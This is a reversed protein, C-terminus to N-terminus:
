VNNAIHTALCTPKYSSVRCAGRKKFMIIVINVLRQAERRGKVNNKGAADMGAADVTDQVCLSMTLVALLVNILILVLTAAVKFGACVTMEAATM